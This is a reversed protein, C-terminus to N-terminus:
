IQKMKDYLNAVAAGYFIFISLIYIWALLILILGAAGYFNVVPNASIYINVMIKTSASLVAVVVSGLVCGRWSPSKKTLFRYLLTMFVCTSLLFAASSIINPLALYSTIVQVGITILLYIQLVFIFIFSRWSKLLWAKFGHSEISWLRQFGAAVVNLALVCVTSFFLVGLLPIRFSDTVARLNMVAEQIVEVVKPGMIMGWGLFVKTTVPDGYILGVMMISLVILPILALPAYFSFAAAYYDANRDILLKISDYFLVLYKM